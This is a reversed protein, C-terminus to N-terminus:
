WTRDGKYLTGEQSYEPRMASHKKVGSAAGATHLKVELVLDCGDAVEVKPFSFSQASNLVGHPEQEEAKHFVGQRIGM